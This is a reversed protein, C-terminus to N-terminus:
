LNNVIKELTFLSEKTSTLSLPLWAASTMEQLAFCKPDTPITWLLTGTYSFSVSEKFRLSCALM